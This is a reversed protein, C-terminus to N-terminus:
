VATEVVEALQEFFPFRVPQDRRLRCPLASALQRAGLHQEDHHQKGERWVLMELRKVKAPHPIMIAVAKAIQRMIVTEDAQHRTQERRQHHQQVAQAALKTSDAFYVGTQEGDAMVAADVAVLDEVSQRCAALGAHPPKIAELQVEDDVVLALDHRQLDGRAVGGVAGHQIIHCAAQCALKVRVLAVDAVLQESREPRLM